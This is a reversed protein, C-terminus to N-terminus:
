TALNINDILAKVPYIDDLQFIKMEGSPISGKVNAKGFDTDTSIDM